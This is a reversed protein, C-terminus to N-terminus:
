FSQYSNLVELFENMEGKLINQDLYPYGILHPLMNGLYISTLNVILLIENM